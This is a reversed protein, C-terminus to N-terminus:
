FIDCKLSSSLVEFNVQNFYLDMTLTLHLIDVTLLRVREQKPIFKDVFMNEHFCNM